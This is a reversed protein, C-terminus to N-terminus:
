IFAILLYAVVGHRNGNLGVALMYLPTAANGGIASLYLYQILTQKKRRADRLLRANVLVPPVSILSVFAYVVPPLWAPIICAPLPMWMADPVAGQDLCNDCAGTTVNCAGWVCM